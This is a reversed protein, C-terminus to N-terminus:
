FIEARPYQTGANASPCACMKPIRRLCTTHSAFTRAGLNGGGKHPPVPLPTAVFVSRSAQRARLSAFLIFFPRRAHEVGRGTGGGCPPLSRQPVARGWGCGADAYENASTHM